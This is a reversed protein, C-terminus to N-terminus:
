FYHANTYTGATKSVALNKSNIIVIGAKIESDINPNNERFPNNSYKLCDM